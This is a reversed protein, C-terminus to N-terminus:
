PLGRLLLDDNKDDITTGATDTHNSSSTAGWVTPNHCDLCVSDVDHAKGGGFQVSRTEGVSVLKPHGAGDGGIDIGFLDDKLMKWGLTRHPWSFGDDSCTATIPITSSRWATSWEVTRSNKLIQTYKPGSVTPTALLSMEVANTQDDSTKSIKYTKYMTYPAYNNATGTTYHLLPLMTSGVGVPDAGAAMDIMAAFLGTIAARGNDAALGAED